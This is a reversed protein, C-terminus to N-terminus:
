RRRITVYSDTDALHVTYIGVCTTKMKSIRIQAAGRKGHKGVEVEKNAALLPWDKGGFLNVGRISTLLYLSPM